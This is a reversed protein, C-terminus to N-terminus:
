WSQGCHDAGYAAQEESFGVAILQELLAERTYDGQAVYQRAKRAAQEMWDIGSQALAYLIDVSSFGESRLMRTLVAYSHPEQELLELARRATPSSARLNPMTPVAIQIPAYTPQAGHFVAPETATATRIAELWAKKASNASLGLFFIVAAVIIIAAAMSLVVMKRLGKGKKEEGIPHGCYPCIDAYESVTNGCKPCSILAM